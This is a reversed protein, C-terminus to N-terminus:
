WTPASQTILVDVPVVADVGWHHIYVGPTIHMVVVNSMSDNLSNQRIPM